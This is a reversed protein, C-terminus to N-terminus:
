AKIVKNTALKKVTISSVIITATNPHSVALILLIDRLNALAADRAIYENVSEIINRMESTEM